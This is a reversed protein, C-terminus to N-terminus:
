GASSASSHSLTPKSTPSASRSTLRTMVQRVTVGSLARSAISLARAVMLLPLRQEPAAGPLLEEALTHRAADILALADPREAM